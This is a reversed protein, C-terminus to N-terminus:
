TKAALDVSSLVDMVQSACTCLLCVKAHGCPLLKNRWCREDSPPQMNIEQLQEATIGKSTQEDFSMVKTFAFTCISCTTDWLACGEATM